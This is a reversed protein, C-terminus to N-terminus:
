EPSIEKLSSQNSRRATWPTRSDEGVGCNSLMLERREVVVVMMVTLVGLRGLEESPVVAPAGCKM